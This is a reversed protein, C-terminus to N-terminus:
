KRAAEITAPIKIEGAAIKNKIKELKKIIEAPLLSETYGLGQEEIGLVHVGPKFNNEIVQKVARKVTHNVFKMGNTLVHEPAVHNQNSDAGIGYINNEAAAKLVGLGSRGAAGWIVDARQEIMAKALEKGKAPDAWGGVYSHIVKVEPDIYEAGAIYGAINEDILPIKMGGIVGIVKAPNIKEDKTRTTMMAAAAGMLFGRQKEEYVYSAVNDQKVVADVIAYKQQPYRQSVTNLADAQDFGISIILDYRNLASFQTLYTEYESISTPEAADFSIGYEERAAKIGKFAMDNFSQDGLGGTAFVIAIRGEALVASSLVATALILFLAVLLLKKRM